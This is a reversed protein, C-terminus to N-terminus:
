RGRLWARNLGRRYPHAEAQSAKASWLVPAYEALRCRRVQRFLLEPPRRSTASHQSLLSSGCPRFGSWPVQALIAFILFTASTGSENSLMNLDLNGRSDVGVAVKAPSIVLLAAILTGALIFSPYLIISALGPRAIRSCIIKENLFYAKSEALFHPKFLSTLQKVIKAFM